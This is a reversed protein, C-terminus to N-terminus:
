GVHASLGDLLDGFVGVAVIEEASLIGLGIAQDIADDAM